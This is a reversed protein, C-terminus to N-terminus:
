RFRGVFCSAHGARTCVNTRGAGARDPRLPSSTDGALRARICCHVLLRRRYCQSLLALGVCHRGVLLLLCTAGHRRGSEVRPDQKIKRFRVRLVRRGAYSLRRIEEPEPGSWLGHARALPPMAVAIAGTARRKSLAAACNRCLSCAIEAAAAQLEEGHRYPLWRRDPAGPAPVGDARLEDRQLERWRRVRECWLEALAVRETLADKAAQIEEPTKEPPLAKPERRSSNRQATRTSRIKRSISGTDM